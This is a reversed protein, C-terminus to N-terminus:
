SRSPRVWIACAVVFIAAFAGVGFWLWHEAVFGTVTHLLREVWGPVAAFVPPASMAAEEQFRGLALTRSRNV